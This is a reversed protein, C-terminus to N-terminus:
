IHLEALQCSGSVRRQNSERGVKRAASKRRERGNGGKEKRKINKKLQAVLLKVNDFMNRKLVQKERQEEAM